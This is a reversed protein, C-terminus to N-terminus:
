NGANNGAFISIRTTNKGELSIDDAFAPIEKIKKEFFQIQEQTCNEIDNFVYLGDEVLTIFDRRDQFQLNVFSKLPPYDPYYTVLLLLSSAMKIEDKDLRNKVQM